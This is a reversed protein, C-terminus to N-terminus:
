FCEGITFYLGKNYDDSYGYDIRLNLHEKEIITFRIGGGFSYKISTLNLNKNYVDGVGVFACLGIKWFLFARYEAVASYMSNDRYRGQYFGRLQNAGGLSAMSRFPTDGITSYNYLQFALIHNKVIKKFFRIETIWKSFSYSSIVQNNYNTISSQLFIGRTPWFASNRTDYSTSLGLGALEYPRKGIFATSDFIGGTAYNVKLITQYDALLGFFLKKLVKRKIHASSTLQEFAYKEENENKTYSSIGWFKDPFYSHATQFYFIYKEKPFYITADLSQINQQKESFVGFVQILSPRTLSDKQHTTKFAMSSSLGGAFGTEPTKFVVPIVLYNIKKASDEKLQSFVVYPSCSLILLAPLALFSAKVPNDSKYFSPYTFNKKLL